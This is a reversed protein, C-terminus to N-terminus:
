EAVAQRRRLIEVAAPGYRPVLDPAPANRSAPALSLVDPGLLEALAEVLDPQRDNADLGLLVAGQLGRAQAVSLEVSEVVTLLGKAQDDPPFGSWLDTTPAPPPGGGWSGFRAALGQELAFLEYAVNPHARSRPLAPRDAGAVAVALLEPGLAAAARQPWSSKLHDLALADELLERARAAETGHPLAAPDEQGSLAVALIVDHLQVEAVSRALAQELVQALEPAPLAYWGIGVALAFWTLGARRADWWGGSV